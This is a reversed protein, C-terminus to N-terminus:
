AAFWALASADDTDARATLMNVILNIRKQRTGTSTYRGAHSSVALEYQAILATTDLGALRRAPVTTTM